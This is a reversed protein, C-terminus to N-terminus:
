VCAILGCILLVNLMPFIGIAFLDGLFIHPVALARLAAFDVALFAVLIMLWSIRLRPVNM